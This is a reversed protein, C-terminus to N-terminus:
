EFAEMINDEFATKMARKEAEPDRIDIAHVYLTRRDQSVDISLTGPTLTILNAFVTIEVGNRTELPVALIGPKYNHGPTVVLKLVSLASMALEFLFVGILRAVLWFRRFYRTEGWLWRPLWLAIFGLVFGFALSVASFSGTVAGWTLALLINIMFLNVM